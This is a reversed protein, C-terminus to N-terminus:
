PALGLSPDGGHFPQGSSSPIVALVQRWEGDFPGGGPIPVWLWGDDGGGGGVLKTEHIQLINM